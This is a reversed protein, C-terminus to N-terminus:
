AALPQAGEFGVHSAIPTCSPGSLGRLTYWFCTFWVKTGPPLSPPFEVLTMGRTINGEPKWGQAASPPDEGIFSFLSAGAVGLPRGRRKGSADRMVLRMQHGFVGKVTLEPADKPQPVATPELDKVHIGLELKKEDSVTVANQIFAYLERGYRVLNYKTEDRAAYLPKSRIGESVAIALAAQAALYAQHLPTYLAAQAATLGYESPAATARTNFNTSWPVLLSDKLPIAM